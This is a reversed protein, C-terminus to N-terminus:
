EYPYSVFPIQEPLLLKYGTFDAGLTDTPQEVHRVLLGRDMLEAALGSNILQDYEDRYAHNVQRYVIQDRTFVFGSPDRFSGAVRQAGSRALVASTTTQVELDAQAQDAITMTEEAPVAPM